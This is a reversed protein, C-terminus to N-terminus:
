RSVETDPLAVAPMGAGTLTALAVQRELLSQELAVITQRQAILSAALFAASPYRRRAVRIMILATQVVFSRSSAFHSWALWLSCLALLMGVLLMDAALPHTRMLRRSQGFLGRSIEDPPQEGPWERAPHAGTGPPAPLRITIGM